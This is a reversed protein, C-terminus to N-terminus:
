TRCTATGLRFCPLLEQASCIPGLGVMDNSSLGAPLCNGLGSSQRAAALLRPMRRVICYQLGSPDRRLPPGPRAVLRATTCSNNRVQGIEETLLVDEDQDMTEAAIAANLAAGSAAAEPEMVELDSSPSRGKGLSPQLFAETLDIVDDTDM